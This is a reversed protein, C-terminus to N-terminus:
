AKVDGGFFRMLDLMHIADHLLPGETDAEWEPTPKCGHSCAVIHLLPGWRGSNSLQRVAEHQGSWRNSFNIALKVKSKECAALMADCEGLSLAMPKECLIGSVGAEAAAIVMEPHLPPQTAVAVIDLKEKELMERYDHYLAKVGWREGFKRRREEGRNCGAVVRTEPLVNFAGTISFGPIGVEDELTTAIRGLGIIGVRFM